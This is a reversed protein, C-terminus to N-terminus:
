RHAASVIVAVAVCLAISYAAVFSGLKLVRGRRDRKNRIFPISALMPVGDPLEVDRATRINRDTSESIAVAIGAMAAGFIFGLLILGVRNPYVPSKPASPARLLTFREGGQQSEFSQALNAAQLKDQTTQYENQLVQRRRQIESFERESAPTSLVWMREQALKAQMANSQAKLSSLENRAAQLQTATLNYQPNNAAVAIGGAPTASKASEDM